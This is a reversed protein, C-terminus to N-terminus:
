EHKRLTTAYHVRLASGCHHLATCAACAYKSRRRARESLITGSRLVPIRVCVHDQCSEGALSCESCDRMPLAIQRYECALGYYGSTASCKCIAESPLNKNVNGQEDRAWKEECVGNGNCEQQGCRHGM